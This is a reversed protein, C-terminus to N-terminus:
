LGRREREIRMRREIRQIVEHTLRDVMSAETDASVARRLSTPLANACPALNNGPVSPSPPTPAPGSRADLKLGEVTRPAINPRGKRWILEARSAALASRHEYVIAAAATAMKDARIAHVQEARRGHVQPRPTGAASMVSQRIAVTSAPGVDTDVQSRTPEGRLVSGASAPRTGGTVSAVGGFRSSVTAPVASPSLRLSLVPARRGTGMSAPSDRQKLVGHTLPSRAGRHDVLVRCWPLHAAASATASLRERPARALWAADAAVANLQLRLHFRVDHRHTVASMVPRALNSPQRVFTAITRVASVLVALQSRRRLPTAPTRRVRRWHLSLPRTSRASFDAVPTVWLRALVLRLRARTGLLRGISKM